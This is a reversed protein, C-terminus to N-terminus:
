VKFLSLLFSANNLLFIPPLEILLQVGEEKHLFMFIAVIM